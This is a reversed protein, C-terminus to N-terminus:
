VSSWPAPEYHMAQQATPSCLRDFSRRRTLLILAFTAQRSTGGEAASAACNLVNRDKGYKRIKFLLYSYSFVYFGHTLIHLQHHV